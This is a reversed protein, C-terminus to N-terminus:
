NPNQNKTVFDTLHNFYTEWVSLGYKFGSLVGDWGGDNGAEKALITTIERVHDEELVLHKTFYEQDAGPYHPKLVSYIRGLAPQALFEGAALAGLVEAPNNADKLYTSLRSRWEAAFANERISSLDIGATSLFKRYIAYHTRQPDGEGCEQYLNVALVVRTQEDTMRAAGAAVLAPFSKVLSDFTVLFKESMAQDIAGAKWVSFFPCHEMFRDILGNLEEKIKDESVM